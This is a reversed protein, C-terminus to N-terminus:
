VGPADHVELHSVRYCEEDDVARPLHDISLEVPWGRDDTRLDVEAGAGADEAKDLLDRLTPVDDLRRPSPYGPDLSTASTVQGDVVSVQYDGILSREGCTSTLVLDYTSPLPESSPATESGCGSFGVCVSATLM